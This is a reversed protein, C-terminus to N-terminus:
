GYGSPSIYCLLRLRVDQEHDGVLLTGAAPERRRDGKRPAFAEARLPDLEGLVVRVARGTRRRARRQEGALVECLVADDVVHDHGLVDLEIGRDRSDTRDEAVGAIPRAVDALPVA